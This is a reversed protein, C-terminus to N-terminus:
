QAIVVYTFVGSPPDIAAGTVNCFQIRTLNPSDSKMVSLSTNLPAFQNPAQVMTISTTDNTSGPTTAVFYDCSNAAVSGPNLTFTGSAKLNTGTVAGDALSPNPYTGALAGGAAGGTVKKASAALPVEGLSSEVVKEGTVSDNALQTTGVAGAAIKTSTVAGNQIKATTVANNKIKATTVANKKIQKSGVSNKALGTAFATAGGLVLFVALSSMVNAYTLRKRIQKM